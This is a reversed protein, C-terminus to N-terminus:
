VSKGCWPCFSWYEPIVGWGCGTCTSAVEEILWKRKVKRRCWPCYRMYPMLERRSCSKNGCRAVYRKDTYTRTTQVEFGPGFCWPCYEWDLKMGRFCRPCCQPFDTDGLHRQRDHGCWPCHSMPESVPGNCRTCHSSTELKKGFARQFQRRRITQWDKSPVQKTRSRSRRSRDLVAKSKIRQFNSLMAQADTFRKRPDVSIARRLFAIVDPSVRNRLKDHGPPPWDFPWEPLSGSLMRYAVLGIAFVDSRFSPKGMAQEPACYGLTGEGSARITRFAVRAIGFDTLKLEGDPFIILNDPKIDCHIVGHDHAYAAASLIQETFELALTLSLRSQLRDSLTRDGLPFAVVFRGDIFDATKLPLINPHDLRAAIRVEKRFDELVEDDFLADHPIKLAVRVGEITDLARYVTAFGGDGLKKEIRYKGLKQKAKIVRSM